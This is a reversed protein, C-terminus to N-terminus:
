KRGVSSQFGKQLLIRIRLWGFRESKKKMWFYWNLPLNKIIAVKSLKLKQFVKNELIIGLKSYVIVGLQGQVRFEM